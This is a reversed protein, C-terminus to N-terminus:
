WRISDKYEESVSMRKVSEYGLIIMFSFVVSQSMRATLGKTFVGMQEEAWLVKFVHGFGGTRQVQLRARVIDLPNTLLTTTVGGLPASICQILLTSTGLPALQALQEQYFHYFTWWLASNPVYAAVSATYGRYFGRLGDHQYVARTIAQVVHVKGTKKLNINLPNIVRKNKGRGEIQGLIMMHQSIVDFPVIITQGVLSACAGGIMARTASDQIGKKHLLTRVNEYTTIYAIGSVIQFANVWFGKYLGGMGEYKFIKTFADYTGKYSESHKQIQIRTKIVTFPYLCCRISFSSMCSLPYFKYKNMMDWEITQVIGPVNSIQSM